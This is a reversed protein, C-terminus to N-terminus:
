FGCGRTDRLISCNQKEAKTKERSLTPAPAAHHPFSYGPSLSLAGHRKRLSSEVRIPAGSHMDRMVERSVRTGAREGAMANAAAHPAVRQSVSGTEQNTCAGGDREQETPQGRWHGIKEKGAGGSPPPDRRPSNSQCRTFRRGPSRKIESTQDFTLRSRAQPMYHMTERAVPWQRQTRIRVHRM